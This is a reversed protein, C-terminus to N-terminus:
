GILTEIKQIATDLLDPSTFPRMDSRIRQAVAPLDERTLTDAQKGISGAAAHVCMTAAPAGVLPKLVELVADAIQNM